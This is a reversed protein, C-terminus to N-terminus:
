LKEGEILEKISNLWICEEDCKGKKENLETIDGDCKQIEANKAKIM